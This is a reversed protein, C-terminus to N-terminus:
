MCLSATCLGLVNVQTLPGIRVSCRLDNGREVGVGFLPEQVVAPSRAM